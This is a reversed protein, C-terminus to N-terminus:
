SSGTRTAVTPRSTDALWCAPQTVTRTASVSPERSARASSIRPRVARGSTTTDSTASPRSQNPTCRAKAGNATTSRSNRLRAGSSRAGSTVGTGRSTRRSTSASFAKM